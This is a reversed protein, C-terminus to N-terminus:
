CVIVFKWVWYSKSKRFIVQDTQGSIVLVRTDSSFTINTIAYPDDDIEINGASCKEKNKEFLKQTRIRYLHQMNTGTM